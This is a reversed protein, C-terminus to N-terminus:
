KLYLSVSVPFHDSLSFAQDQTMNFYRTYNFPRASGPVIYRSIDGISVIRDYACDRTQKTATDMEDVIHWVYNFNKRMELTNLEDVSLYCDANFDGLLIANPENTRNWSDYYVKPLSDLEHYIHKPSTHIGILSFTLNSGYPSIRVILPERTFTDYQGEDFVYYSLIELKDVRYFYAYQEFAGRGLRRSLVMDYQARGAQNVRRLLEYISAQSKDMLEQLLIIDHKRIIKVVKNVLSHRQIRNPGFRKLNFAGIKIQSTKSGSTTKSYCPFIQIVLILILLRIAM